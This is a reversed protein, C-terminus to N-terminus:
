FRRSTAGITHLRKRREVTRHDDGDAIEHEANRIVSAAFRNAAFALLILLLIRAGSETLWRSVEDPHLGVTLKVGALDLAPFALVLLTLVFTVRRVAKVTAHAIPQTHFREGEIALLLRRVLSGVLLAIAVAALAALALAAVAEVTFFTPLAPPTTAQM